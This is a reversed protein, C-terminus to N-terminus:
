VEVLVGTELSRTMIEIQFLIVHLLLLQLPPTWRVFSARNSASDGNPWRPGLRTVSGKKGPIDTIVGLLPLLFGKLLRTIRNSIFNKNLIILRISLFVANCEIFTFM